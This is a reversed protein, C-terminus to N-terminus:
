LTCKLKVHNELGVLTREIGGSLKCNVPVPQVRIGRTQFPFYLNM